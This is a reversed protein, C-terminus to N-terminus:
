WSTKHRRSSESIKTFEYELPCIRNISPVQHSIPPAFRPKRFETTNTAYSVRLIANQLHISAPIPAQMNNCDDMHKQMNVSSSIAFQVAEKSANTSLTPILTLSYFSVGMPKQHHPCYPPLSLKLMSTNKAYTILYIYQSLFSRTSYPFCVTMCPPLSAHM